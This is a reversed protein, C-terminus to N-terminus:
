QTTRDVTYQVSENQDTTDQIKETSESNDGTSSQSKTAASSSSRADPQNELDIDSDEVPTVSVSKFCHSHVVFAVGTSVLIGVPVFVGILIKDTSSLEPPDTLHPNTPSKSTELSNKTTSEFM